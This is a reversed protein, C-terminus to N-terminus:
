SGSPQGGSTDQLVGGYAGYTAEKLGTPNLTWSDASLAINAKNVWGAEVFDINSKTGTPTTNTTISLDKNTWYGGPLYCTRVTFALFPDYNNFDNCKVWFNWTLNDDSTVRFTHLKTSGFNIVHASYSTLVNSADKRLTLFM